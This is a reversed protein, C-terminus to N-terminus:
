LKDFIKLTIQKIGIDKILPIMWLYSMENLAIKSNKWDSFIFFIFMNKSVYTMFRLGAVAQFTLNM